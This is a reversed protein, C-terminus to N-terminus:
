EWTGREHHTIARRVLNPVELPVGVVTAHAVPSGDRYFTVNDSGDLDAHDVVLRVSGDLSVLATEDDNPRVYIREVRSDVTWAEGDELRRAPADLDDSM